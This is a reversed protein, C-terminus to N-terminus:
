MFSLFHQVSLTLQDVPSFLILRDSESTHKVHDLRVEKIGNGPGM